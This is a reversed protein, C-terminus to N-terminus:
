VLNRDIYHASIWFFTTFSQTSSPMIHYPLLKMCIPPPYCNCGLDFSAFEFMPNLTLDIILYTTWQYIHFKTGASYKVNNYCCIQMEYAYM